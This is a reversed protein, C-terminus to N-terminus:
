QVQCPVVHTLRRALLHQANDSTLTVPSLSLASQRRQARYVIPVLACALSRSLWASLLVAYPQSPNGAVMMVMSWDFPKNHVPNLCSRPGMCVMLRHSLVLCRVSFRVAPLNFCVAPLHLRGGLPVVAAAGAHCAGQESVSGWTCRLAPIM